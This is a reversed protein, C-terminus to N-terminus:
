LRWKRAIIGVVYVPMTFIIMISFFAVDAAGIMWQPVYDAGEFVADQYHEFWDRM